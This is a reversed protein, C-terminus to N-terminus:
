KPVDDKGRPIYYLPKQQLLGIEHHLLRKHEKGHIVHVNLCLIAVMMIIM